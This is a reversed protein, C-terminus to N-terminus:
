DLPLKDLGTMRDSPQNQKERMPNGWDVSERVRKLDHQCQAILRALSKPNLGPMQVLANAEPPQWTRNDINAGTMALLARTFQLMGLMSVPETARGPHLQRRVAECTTRPFRWHDLLMAGAEAFDFGVVSREWDQIPQRGDWRVTCGRDEIVRNIHVRGIAHLIGVTFADERDLGTHGALAEMVLAATVSSNRYGAAPIGYCQLDRAFARRALSLSVVRIVERVGIFNIAAALNSHLAAPAYYPSNSIRILDAALPGDNRLLATIQILETAPDKALEMVKVLVAPTAGLTGSSRISQRFEDPSLM